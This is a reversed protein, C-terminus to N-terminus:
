AENSLGYILVAVGALAIGRRWWVLDINKVISLDVFLAVNELAMAVFFLGCWLLLRVGTKRYSGLLLGACLLATAACLLYVAAEM